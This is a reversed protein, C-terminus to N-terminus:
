QWFYHGVIIGVVFGLPSLWRVYEQVIDSAIRLRGPAGTVSSRYRLELVSVVLDYFCLLFLTGTLAAFALFGASVFSIAGQREAGAVGVLAVAFAALGVKGVHPAKAVGLLLRNGPTAARGGM